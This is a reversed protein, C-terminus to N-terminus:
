LHRTKLDVPIMEERGRCYPKLFELETKAKEEDLGPLWWVKGENKWRYGRYKLADKSEFPSDYAFVDYSPTFIKKVLEELFMDALHVGAWSDELADHHGFFWDKLYAMLIGLSNSPIMYRERLNLDANTCGWVLPEHNWFRDVYRRDFRANHALAFEVGEFADSFDDQTIMEGIEVLKEKTLGTLRAASEEVDGKPINHKLGTRVVKTIRYADDFQFRVWGIQTPEAEETNLGTTEFDVYTAEYVNGIPEREPFERPMQTLVRIPKGGSTASRGIEYQGDRNLM